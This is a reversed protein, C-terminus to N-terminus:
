KYQLPERFIPTVFNPIELSVNAKREVIYRDYFGSIASKTHIQCCSINLRYTFVTRVSYQGTTCKNVAVCFWVDGGNCPRLLHQTHTNRIQVYKKSSLTTM